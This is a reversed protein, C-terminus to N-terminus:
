ELTVPLQVFAPRQKGELIELTRAVEGGVAASTEWQWGEATPRGVGAEGGASVYYAQALGVYIAKVEAPSGDALTHVEYNVTIENNAKNLENLIGLVNQFREAVSARTHTPDAPIRQYLPQLKAQIPEPLRPFLRRAESEMGTVADRLQAGAAVLHADEALLLGRTEDSATVSSRAEAIKEELTAIEAEILELRALLIERGQQWDKREKSIIQQTEIWKDMTLRAEELTPQAATGAGGAAPASEAAAREGGAAPASEAATARSPSPPVGVHALLAIGIAAARIWATSPLLEEGRNRESV